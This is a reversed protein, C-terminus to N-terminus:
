ANMSEGREIATILLRGGSYAFHLRYTAAEESLRKGQTFYTREGHLTVVLDKLDTDVRHPFFVYSANHERLAMEEALLKDRITDFAAPHTHRLLLNRQAEASTATKTLLQQALFVGFQELYTASVGTEDVWFTKEITPPAIIIREQKLFLFGGVISVGIALILCLGLLINRQFALFQITWKHTDSKM